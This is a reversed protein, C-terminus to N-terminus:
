MIFGAGGAGFLILVLVGFLAYVVYVKKVNSLEAAKSILVLLFISPVVIKILTHVSVTSKLTRKM